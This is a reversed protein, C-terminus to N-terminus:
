GKKGLYHSQLARLRQPYVERELAEVYHAMRRTYTFFVVVVSFYVVFLM